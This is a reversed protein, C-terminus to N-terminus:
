TCRSYLGPFIKERDLVTESMGSQIGWIFVGYSNLYCLAIWRGDPSISISVIWRTEPPTFSTQCISGNKGEEGSMGLLDLEELIGRDRKALFPSIDWYKLRENGCTVIGNGDPMFSVYLVRWPHGYLRELPRGTLMDWIIATGDMCGVVACQSDPSFAFSVAGANPTLILHTKRAEVDWLEVENESRQFALLHGDPSWVVFVGDKPQWGRHSYIEFIATGSSVNCLQVSTATRAAILM